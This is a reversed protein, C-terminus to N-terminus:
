GLRQQGMKQSSGVVSPHHEYIILNKISVVRSDTNIHKTSSHLRQNTCQTDEQSENRLHTDWGWVKLAGRCPELSRHAYARMERAYAGTGGGHVEFNSVPLYGCLWAGDM